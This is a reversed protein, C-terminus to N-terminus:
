DVVFAVDVGDVVGGEEGLAGVGDGQDGDVAPWAAEEFIQGDGLAKLFGVGWGGEGVM